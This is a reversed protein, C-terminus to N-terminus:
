CRAVEELIALFREVVQATAFCKLEAVKDGNCVKFTCDMVWGEGEIPKNQALIVRESM